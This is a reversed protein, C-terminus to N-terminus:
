SDKCVEVGVQGLDSDSVAALGAPVCGTFDNGSLRWQVLSHRSLEGLEEPIQGSLMNDSLWLRELKTLRGFWAPIPGSLMNEHLWLRTLSEMDGLTSPITGDLQNGQLRLWQLKDLGSLDPIKGSLQNTHLNVSTVSSPLHSAPIEGTLGNTHLWLVTLSTMGSLDPITGGLPNEQIILWRLKAPLASAEPVGGELENGALKLKELSTMGSLDPITGSLENGWLWLERMNAMGNLWAPVPGTLMNRALYLEELGALGSLDPIPGSLQNTHLNLRVLNTLNGLEAPLEGSLANTRLNLDTLMFLRGLDPPITGELGSNPLGLRSVRRPTGRIAIGEWGTIPINASWNLTGPGALVDGAALLAKCDSVLGTNTGDTVAGGTVCVSLTTATMGESWPSARESNIARVQVDYRTDADLGVIVYQLAGGATANWVDKVVTWNSDVTKDAVTRIHRLDYSVINGKGTEVPPTWSVVLQEDGPTTAGIAPPGLERPVEIHCAASNEALVFAPSWNSIHTGAAGGELIRVTLVVRDLHGWLRRWVWGQNVTIRSGGDHIQEPRVDILERHLSTLKRFELTLSERYALGDVTLNLTTENAHPPSRLVCSPPVPSASQITVTHQPIPADETDPEAPQPTNNFPNWYVLIRARNIDGVYLNDNDDFTATYPMSGFDHLYSTPLADKSLPDDYVGVFRPGVYANYGVAMRNKSDFAPEWTAASFSGWYSRSHEGFVTGPEWPDVWLNTRGVASRTFVKTAPPAFITESNTVPTSEASFVLMRRNGNIELAHDSVYLNGKRDITLAGPFCLVDTNEGSEIEFPDAAPFRGRNCQDGSANEQGLVVDVM